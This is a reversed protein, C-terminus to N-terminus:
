PLVALSDIHLTKPPACATGTSTACVGYGTADATVDVDHVAGLASDFILFTCAAKATSSADDRTCSQEEDLIPRGGARPRVVFKVVAFQAGSVVVKFRTAIFDKGHRPLTAPTASTDGDIWVDVEKSEAKVFAGPPPVCKSCGGCAGRLDVTTLTASPPLLCTMRGGGFRELCPAVGTEASTSPFGTAQIRPDQSADISLLLARGPSAAMPGTITGAVTWRAPSTAILALSAAVLVGASLWRREPAM